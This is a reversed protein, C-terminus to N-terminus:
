ASPQDRRARIEELLVKLHDGYAIEREARREARTRSRGTRLIRDVRAQVPNGTPPLTTAPTM